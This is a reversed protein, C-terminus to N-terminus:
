DMVPKASVAMSEISCENTGRQIRFYGSEGWDKGWSNKMIWFKEGTEKDAGYGVALVGHNVIELPNFKDKLGTCPLLLSSLCVM